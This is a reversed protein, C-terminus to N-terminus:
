LQHVTQCNIRSLLYCGEIVGNISCIYDNEELSLGDVGNNIIGRGEKQETEIM